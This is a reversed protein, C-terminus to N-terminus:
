RINLINKNYAPENDKSYKLIKGMEIRLHMAKAERYQFSYESLTEQDENSDYENIFKVLYKNSQTTNGKIFFIKGLSFLDDMFMNKSSPTYNLAKTYNSISENYKKLERNCVGLNHYVSYSENKYQKAILLHKEAYEVCKSFKKEAMACITLTNYAGDNNSHFDLSKVAYEKALNCNVKQIYKRSITDYIKSLAIKTNKDETDINYAKNALLIAKEINGSEAFEESKKLLEVKEDKQCYGLFIPILILYINNKIM